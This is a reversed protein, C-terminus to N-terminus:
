FRPREPPPEEGTLRNRKLSKELSSSNWITGGCMICDPNWGMHCCLVCESDVELILWNTETPRLRYRMRWAKLGESYNLGTTFVRVESDVQSVNLIKESSSARFSPLFRTWDFEPSFYRRAYEGHTEHQKKWTATRERFHGAIFQEIAPDHYMRYKPEDDPIRDPSQNVRKPWVLAVPEKWNRWGAGPRDMDLAVILWNGGSSKVHYRSRYITEGSTVVLIEGASATIDVIEEGESEEIVGRRSDWLCDAHYYRRRYSHHIELYRKLASTRERFFESFFQEIAPRHDM